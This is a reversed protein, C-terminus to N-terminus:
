GWQGSELQAKIRPGRRGVQKWWASAELQRGAEQWDGRKVAALMLVFRALKLPGLNFMLEVLSAYRVPDMVIVWPYSRLLAQEAERLDELLLANAESLSLGVDQLNRGFGVSLKGPKECTCLAVERGCCDRYPLLRDNNTPGTGEADKVRAQLERYNTM